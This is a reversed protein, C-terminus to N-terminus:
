DYEPRTAIADEIRAMLEYIEWSMMQGEETALYGQLEGIWEPPPVAGAELQQVMWEIRAYMDSGPLPPPGGKRRPRVGVRRRKRLLSSGFSPPLNLLM